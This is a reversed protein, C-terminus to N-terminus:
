NSNQKILKKTITQNGTNITVFYLGSPLNSINIQQGTQIHSASYVVVGNADTIKVDFNSNHKGYQLKVQNAAPNPSVVLSAVDKSKPSPTADGNPDLNLVIGPAPPVKGTIIYTGLSAYNTYGTTLVDGEGTGAVSVYYKGPALTTSITANLGPLDSTTIARGTSDYLTALIDLTPYYPNPNFILNVPGGGTIFSFMDVDETREIIGKNSVNGAADMTLLTAATTTNGYDDARYGIDNNSIITLDDEQNNANAYEGKSWQVLSKYYGDGM